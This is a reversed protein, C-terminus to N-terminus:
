QYIGEFIKNVEEEPIDLLISIEKRSYGKHRLKNVIILDGLQEKTRLM